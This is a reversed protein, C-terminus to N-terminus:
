VVNRKEEKLRTVFREFSQILAKSLTLILISIFSLTLNTLYDIMGIGNYLGLQNLIIGIVIEGLSVSLFVLVLKYLIQKAFFTVIFILYIPAVFKFPILLSIPDYISFLYIAVYGLAVIMSSVYLYLQTLINKEFLFYISLCLFFLIALNITYGFMSISHSASVIGLLSIVAIQTRRKGKDMIWTAWVWSLWAVWYFLFKEM